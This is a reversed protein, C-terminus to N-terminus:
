SITKIKRLIKVIEDFSKKKVFEERFTDVPTMKEQFIQKDIQYFVLIVIVFQKRM